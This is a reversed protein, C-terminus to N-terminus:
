SGHGLSRNSGLGTGLRNNDILGNGSGSLLDDHHVVVIRNVLGAATAEPAVVEPVLHHEATGLLDATVLSLRITRSLLSVLGARHLRAIRSLWNVVGHGVADATAKRRADQEEPQHM